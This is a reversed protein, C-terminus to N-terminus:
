AAAGGYTGFNWVNGEPDRAVYELSGYDQERPERVIEAGAAKATACHAHPDKVVVYLATAAFGEVLQDYESDGAQGLMLSTPGYALQAHGVAGSDDRYVVVETFGFAKTLFEIAAGADKYRLTAFITQQAAQDTM